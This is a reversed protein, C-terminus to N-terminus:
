LNLTIIRRRRRRRREPLPLALPVGLATLGATLLFARDAFQQAPVASLSVTVIPM